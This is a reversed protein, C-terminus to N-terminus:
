KAAAMCPRLDALMPGTSSNQVGGGFRNPGRGSRIFMSTDDLILTSVSACFKLWKNDQELFQEVNSLYFASVSADFRKLYRAVSRIAVDGGFDGVVPVVLNRAELDKVFAFNEENALYSRNEGRGDDATMLDAYTTGIGRGAGGTTGVIAPPVGASLSSGYNIGPGFQYFNGFAWRIGDHDGASLAFGHKKTLLDEVAQLNEEYLAKNGEATTFANFIEVATSKSTLGDPRKRSFLRSVFDVRDKSLEFLAKYMLQVDLNGHRIDIIIAMAPRVASLYTFNQEPGVGLYVRGPKVTKVLDPIVTQFSTENSLLNDSRFYGDAESSDKSLNWFERDTLTKPLTGASATQPASAGGTLRLSAIVLVALVLAIPRVREHKM